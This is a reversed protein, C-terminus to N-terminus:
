QKIIIQRHIMEQSNMIIQYLGNEYMGLNIEYIQNQVPESIELIEMLRGSIDLIRIQVIEPISKEFSLNFIGDGPNPYIKIGPFNSNIFEINDPHASKKDSKRNSRATNLRTAKLGSIDCDDPSHVQIFYYLNDKPPNKDTYSNLNGSLSAIMEWDAADSYRYVEYNDVPFGEYNDWILNVSNDLGLNMTLHITKHHSSLESENGCVDVVSLKYRWSHISPDAISDVFISIGDVSKSGILRYDNKISSERYINYYAVDTTNIKEWVILNMQNISDVTVLCIPNVPPPEQCIEALNYGVCGIKDKVKIRYTGAELGTIDPTTEGNPFWEYSYPGNGTVGIHIEGINTTKCGVGIINKFSIIPGGVNSVIVPETAECGNVDIIKLSYIGDSLGALVPDKSGDSWHYSYPQTGGSIIAAAKGDYGGCTADEVLVQFSLKQPQQIEFSRSGVCNNADKITVNYIGSALNDIDETQKGNSWKIQYPAFGGSVDIDISGSKEGYCRANIIKENAIQPGSGDNEIDIFSRSYCGKSDIVNVFHQGAGLKSALATTDGDTWVFKYPPYGGTASVEAIGDEKGCTSAQIQIVTVQIAEGIIFEKNTQCGNTDAVTLSYNGIELGEISSENSGTSWYYEYPGEGNLIAVSAKGDTSDCYVGETTVSLEPPEYINVEFEKSDLCEGLQSVICNCIIKGPNPFLYKITDNLKESYIEPVFDGDFDWSISSGNLIGSSHDIIITSDGLCGPIVSINFKPPACTNEYAGIDPHSLDRPLSDIDYPVEPIPTAKGVLNTQNSHLDSESVFLPDLSLSHNEKGSLSKLATLNSVNASEWYALQNGQTYYNNYDSSFLNSADIVILAYGGGSNLINNNAQNIGINGTSIKLGASSLTDLSSVNISNYYINTRESSSIVIGSSSYAREGGVCIQNNSILTRFPISVIIHDMSIGNGKNRSDIKNGSILVNNTCYGLAIASTWLYNTNEIKNGIIKPSELYKLNIAQISGGKINNNIIKFGKSYVDWEGDIVIGGLGGTFENNKIIFNDSYGQVSLINDDTNKNSFSNNILNIKRTTGTFKLACGTSIGNAAISLNQITLYNVGIFSFIDPEQLSTNGYIIVDEPNGPESELVITDTSSSGSIHYVDGVIEPYIDKRIKLSVPGSIGRKQLDAFADSVSGYDPSSGGITYNGGPIPIIDTDYEDCGIDPPNNRMEGDLDTIIGPIEIGAGNLFYSATHYDEGNIFNPFHIISNLSFGLDAELLDLAPYNLGDYQILISNRTFLSNNKFKKLQDKTADVAPGSCRISIINNKIENNAGDSISIGTFSRIPNNGNTIITNNFIATYSSLSSNIAKGDRLDEYFYLFNNAILIAGPSSGSCYSLSIMNSGNGYFQNQLIKSGDSCADLSLHAFFNYSNDTKRFENGYISYNKCNSLSISKYTHNYFYNSDIKFGSPGAGLNAKLYIGEYGAFQNSKIVLNKTNDSSIWICADDEGNGSGNFICNVISDSECDYDIKLLRSYSYDSESFTIGKITIYRAGLMEMIYNKESSGSSYSIVVPESNSPDPKFTVRKDSSAGHVALLSFQEQYPSNDDRILFSVADSIGYNNLDNIADSITNYDPNTGSITYNGALSAGSGTFEDAGIDPTASRLDGDIDSSVISTLDNGKNDLLFSTAHLDNDSVFAPNVSLSHSDGPSIAALDALKSVKVGEWLAIYSGTTFYNNYDSLKLSEPSDITYAYGGSFNAFINNQIDINSGTTSLDFCSPPYDTILGSLLISNHYVAIFDGPTSLIIGNGGRQTTTHITVFNNAILAPSGILGSGQIRMGTSGAALDIKNNKIKFGKDVASFHIANIQSSSQIDNNEILPYQCYTLDIAYDAQNKFLNNRIVFGVSLNQYSLGKLSIGYDGSQFINNDFLIEHNPQYESYIIAGTYYYSGVAKGIFYNNQFRLYSSTGTIHFVRGYSYSGNSGDFLIRNFSLYNASDLKIIFNDEGDVYSFALIVKLSDEPLAQFTVRNDESAGPYNGITFHEDYTGPKVNFTLPGNVGLNNLDNVAETFSIYDGGGSIDITRTGSLQSYISSSCFFFVVPIM